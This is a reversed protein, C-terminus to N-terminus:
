ESLTVIALQVTVSALVTVNLGAGVTFRPLSVVKQLPSEKISWLGWGAPLVHAHLVPLVSSEM